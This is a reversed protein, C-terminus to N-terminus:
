ELIPSITVFYCLILTTAYLIAWGDRCHRGGGRESYSIYRTLEDLRKRRGVKSKYGLAEGVM